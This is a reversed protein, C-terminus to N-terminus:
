VSILVFFFFFLSLVCLCMLIFILSHDASPHLTVGNSRRRRRRPGYKRLQQDKSQLWLACWRSLLVKYTVQVCLGQNRNTHQQQQGGGIRLGVTSIFWLSEVKNLSVRACTATSMPRSERYTAAAATCRTTRTRVLRLNVTLLIYYLLKCHFPFSFGLSLLPLLLCVCDCM